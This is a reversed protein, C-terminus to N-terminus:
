IRPEHPLNDRHQSSPSSRTQSIDKVLGIAFGAYYSHITSLNALATAHAQRRIRKSGEPLILDASPKASVENARPATNSPEPSSPQTPIDEITDVIDDQLGGPTANTEPLDPSVTRSPTPLQEIDKTPDNSEPTTTQDVNSTTAQDTNSTPRQHNLNVKYLISEDESEDEHHPEPLCITQLTDELADRLLYNIDQGKPDYFSTEDFTVDRTRIVKHLSPIWIRYINTSNYGVLHGILARPALKDGRKIREDLTYTKCGYVHMHTLSLPKGYAIEYPTKWGLQENPTRNLAYGAALFAEPGLSPPLSAELQMARSREMLTRGSREAAGNQEETYPARCEFTIGEDACWIQLTDGTQGFAREDDSWFFVVHQHFRLKILQHTKRITPLVTAKDKNKAIYVFNFKSYTCYFHM